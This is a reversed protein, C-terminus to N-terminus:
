SSSSERRATSMASGTATRTAAAFECAHRDCLYGDEFPLDGPRQYTM